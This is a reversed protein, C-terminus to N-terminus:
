KRIFIVRQKIEKRVKKREKKKNIVFTKKNRCPCSQKEHFENQKKLSFQMM